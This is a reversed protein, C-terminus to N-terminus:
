ATRAVAWVEVSRIGVRLLERAAATATAGTTVVDDVLAVRKGALAARQQPDFMFAGRLNLARQARPLDAQHATDVPRLLAQPVVPIGLRQSLQRALLATQNFGREALRAPALPIPVLCEVREPPAPCAQQQADDQLAQALAAALPEALDTRSHFKLDLIARDWPFAYDFAVVTREVAAESGICTGCGAVGQLPLACRPCRRVVRRYLGICTGCFPQSAWQRCVECPGGLQAGWGRRAAHHASGRSLRWPREMRDIYQGGHSGPANARARITGNIADGDRARAGAEFGAVVGGPQM